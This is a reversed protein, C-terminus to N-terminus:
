PDPCEFHFSENSSDLRRAFAQIQSIAHDRHHFAQYDWLTMVSRGMGVLREIRDRDSAASLPSSHYTLSQAEIIGPRGILDFDVRGIFDSDGLSVQRRVAVGAQQALWDVRREFGSEPPPSGNSLRVLERAVRTGNRGKGGIQRVLDDLRRGSTLHRSLLFDYAREARAPNQSAALHFALLTPSTVPIENRLVTEELPLDAQFHLVSLRSRSRVGQRPITVHVAGRFDFGPVGWLAAASDYSLVAGPPADLVGAMAEALDTLPAGSVHFVQPSLPDLAGRNELARIQIEGFGLHHLQRRGIVGHQWEALGWAVGQIEMGHDHRIATAIHVGKNERSM